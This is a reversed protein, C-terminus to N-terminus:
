KLRNFSIYLWKTSAEYAFSYANFSNLQLHIFVYWVVHFISAYAFLIIHQMCVVWTLVDFYPNFCKLVPYHLWLCFRDLLSLSLPPPPLSLKRQHNMWCMKEKNDLAQTLAWKNGHGCLCRRYIVQALFYPIEARFWHSKTLRFLAFAKDIAHALERPQVGFGYYFFVSLLQANQNNEITFIVTTTM